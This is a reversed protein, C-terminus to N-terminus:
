VSCITPLTLHTYSVAVLTKSAAIENTTSLSFDFQFFSTLRNEQSYEIVYLKKNDPSFVGSHVFVTRPESPLSIPNTILGTKNDFDFVEVIKEAGGFLAIKKFDPSFKITGDGLPETNVNEMNLTSGVESIIPPSIGESTIEYAFFRNSSFEHTIVWISGCIGKGAVLRGTLNDQLFINKQEQIVDGNGNELSLDLVSYYLEGIIYDEFDNFGGKLSFIYYKNKNELFPVVLTPMATRFSAKLARNGSDRICM